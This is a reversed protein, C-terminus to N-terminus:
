QTFGLTARTIYNATIGFSSYTMSRKKSTSTVSYRPCYREEHMHRQVQSLDMPRKIISLYDNLGLSKWDVPERFAYADNSEYLCNFIIKLKKFEEKSLKSAARLRLSSHLENM